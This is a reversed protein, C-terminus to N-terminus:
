VGEPNVFGVLVNLVGFIPLGDIGLLAVIVLLPSLGM